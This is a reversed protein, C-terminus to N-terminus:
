DTGVKNVNIANLTGIQLASAETLYLGGTGTGKVDAALKAVNLELHDSGTGAGDGDATGTTVIRLEDATLNNTGANADTITAASLSINGTTTLQGLALTTAAEYRINNEGTTVAGDAMTIANARVDVTGRDRTTLDGNANQTLTDDTVVSIHGTGADVGADLTIQGTVNLLVNGSGAASLGTTGDTGDNITLGGANVSVVVAGDSTTTLDEQASN